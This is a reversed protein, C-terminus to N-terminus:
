WQELPPFGRKAACANLDTKLQTISGADNADTLIQEAELWQKKAETTNGVSVNILALSGTWIGTLRPDNIKRAQDLARQVHHTAKAVENESLYVVGLCGEWQSQAAPRHLSEALEMAGQLCTRAEALRGLAKLATGLNGLCYLEKEKSGIERVVVLTDVFIREAERFRRMAQYAVGVNIEIAAQQVRYGLKKALELAALSQALSEEYQGTKTYLIGLRATATLEPSQLKAARTLALVSRYIEEAKATRGQQTAVEALASSCVAVAMQNGADTALQRGEELVAIAQAHRGLHTLTDGLQGCCYAEQGPDGARQFCKRALEFLSVSDLPRGLQALIAAKQTALLGHLHGLSTQGDRDAGAAELEEVLALGSTAFREADALRGCTRALSAARWSLGAKGIPREALNIAQITFDLAELNRFGTHSHQAARVLCRRQRDRWLPSNDNDAANRAHLAMEAAVADIPLDADTGLEPPQPLPGLLGEIIEFALGHLRSRDSPLQLQYAGERLLAHRFLYAIEADM